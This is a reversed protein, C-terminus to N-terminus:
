SKVISCARREGANRGEQGRREWRFLKKIFELEQSMYAVQHFMNAIEDDTLSFKSFKPKNRAKPITPKQPEANGKSVVTMQVETAKEKQTRISLALDRMRERKIIDPNIGAERFIVGVDGGDCYRQWFIEKFAETYTISKRSVSVVYESM